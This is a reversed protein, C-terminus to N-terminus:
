TVSVNRNTLEEARLLCGFLCVISCYPLFQTEDVSVEIIIWRKRNRRETNKNQKVKIRSHWQVLDAM